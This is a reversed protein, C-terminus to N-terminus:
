QEPAIACSEPLPLEVQPSVVHVIVPPADPPGHILPKLVSRPIKDETFEYLYVAAALPIYPGFNLALVVLVKLAAKVADAFVLTPAGTTGAFGTAATLM